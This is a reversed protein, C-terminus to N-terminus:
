LETLFSPSSSLLSSQAIIRPKWGQERQSCGVWGPITQGRRAGRAACLPRSWCLLSGPLSFGRPLSHPDAPTLLPRSCGRQPEPLAAHHGRETVHLRQTGIARRGGGERHNGPKRKMKGANRSCKRTGDGAKCAPSPGQLLSPWRVSRSGTIMSGSMKAPASPPLQVRV